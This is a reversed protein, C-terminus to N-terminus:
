KRHSEESFHNEQRNQDEHETRGKTTTASRAPLGNGSSASKRKQRLSVRNRNQKLFVRLVPATDLAGGLSM